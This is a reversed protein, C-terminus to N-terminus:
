PASLVPGHTTFLLARGRPTAVLATYAVRDPRQQVQFTRGSDRSILTVGDLAVAEVTGDPLQALATISSKTGTSQPQWTAGQDTSRLLSGRLGGVLLDGNQLALGTWLSGTYGTDLSEWHEGSDTSRLVAGREAAAYLTGNASAFLAYMNRDAHKSGSAAPMEVRNWTVGGDQTRYVMSWLGAAVGEKASSFRVAFFPQDATTDSHQLTWSEGGDSTMLIAGWHGVAWGTKADVFAVATLMASIPVQRAQRWTSGDDDSLAITGREGVAVIRKGAVAAAEYTTTLLDPSTWAPHVLQKPDATVQGNAAETGLLAVLSVVIGVIASWSPHATHASDASSHIRM